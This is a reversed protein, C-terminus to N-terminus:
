ERERGTQYLRYFGSYRNASGGSLESLREERHIYVGPTKMSGM